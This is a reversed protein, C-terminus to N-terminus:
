HRRIEVIKSPGHHGSVIRLSAGVLKEEQLLLEIVRTNARGDKAPERVFVEYLDDNQIVRDESAEPYVRVRIHKPTEVM